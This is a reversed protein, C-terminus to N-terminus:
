VDIGNTAIEFLPSVITTPAGFAQLLVFQPPATYTNVATFLVMSLVLTFGAPIREVAGVINLVPGGVICGNWSGVNVGDVKEGVLRGVSSWCTLKSKSIRSVPSGM